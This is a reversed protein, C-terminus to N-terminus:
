PAPVTDPVILVNASIAAAAFFGYANKGTTLNKVNGTVPAPPSDFPSGVFATQTRITNTYNFFDETIKMQFVALTDNLELQNGYVDFGLLCLGDLGEDNTTAINSPSSVFKNNLYFMWRYYDGEGQQEITSLAMTYISSDGIFNPGYVADIQAIPPVSEYLEPTTEYENGLAKIRIFYENGNEPNHTIRYTGPISTDEILTEVLVNNEYLDVKAGSVAPPTANSFYDATTTLVVKKFPFFDAVNEVSDVPFFSAFLAILQLTDKSFTIDTGPCTLDSQPIFIDLDSLYAEVVLEPENPPLDLDIEEQCAQFTFLSALLAATILTFKKM